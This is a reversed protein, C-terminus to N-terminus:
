GVPLYPRRRALSLTGPQFDITDSWDITCNAVPVNQDAHLQELNAPLETLLRHLQSPSLVNCDVTDPILDVAQLLEGVLKSCFTHGEPCLNVGYYSGIMASTSFKINCKLLDDIAAYLAEVQEITCLIRVTEYAPNSFTRPKFHIESHMFISCAMGNPLHLECHCFPPDASAVLKNIFGETDSKPNYFQVRVVATM